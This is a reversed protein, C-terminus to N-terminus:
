IVKNIVGNDDIELWYVWDSSGYYKNEEDESKEFTSNQQNWHEIFMECLDKDTFPYATIRPSSGCSIEEACDYIIICRENTKTNM